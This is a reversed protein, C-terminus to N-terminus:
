IRNEIKFQTNKIVIVIKKIVIEKKWSGNGKGACSRSKKVYPKLIHYYLVM